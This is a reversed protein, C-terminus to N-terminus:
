WKRFKMSGAAGVEISQSHSFDKYSLFLWSPSRLLGRSSICLNVFPNLRVRKHIDLSLKTDIQFDSPDDDCSASSKAILHNDDEREVIYAQTTSIAKARVQRVFGAAQSAATDLDGRQATLKATAFSSLLSILGLVVIMELLSYGNSNPLRLSYAICKNEYKAKM